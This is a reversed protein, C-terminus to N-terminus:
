QWLEFACRILIILRQRQLVFDVVRQLRTEAVETRDVCEEVLRRGDPM